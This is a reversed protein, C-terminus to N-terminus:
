AVEFVWQGGRMLPVRTGGKRIGDVDMAESGIMWDQHVQSQNMGRQARAEPTLAEADKLNEAYAQGFAIHSAANEDFLTNLFLVGAKKVGSDVPVLAVEGLRKAGEDASLLAEVAKQGEEAQVRVAVGDRFRVTLGRVLVGNLSFPMTASVVGDVRDRHPMTFVEETPINPLCTVGNKAQGWGGQWVHGEALGVVLDTGPGRFHLADFNQESLYRARATLEDARQRWAAVPDAEDLRTAKAIATKLAKLAEDEPLDPFVAKAWGRSPYGVITWNIRFESIRILMPRYAERTAQMHKGVKEPPIEGFLGPDTGTIALRAAGEDFARAVAEFFWRPAHNLATENGYRLRALSVEDDSILPFVGAAGAGYAARAIARVLPLHDVHATLFIEQGEKLNLGVRVALEALKTEFDDM